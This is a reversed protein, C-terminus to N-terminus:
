ITTNVVRNRKELQKRLLPIHERKVEKGFKISVPGSIIPCKSFEVEVSGFFSQLNKKETKGLLSKSCSVSAVADAQNTDVSQQGFSWLENVISQKYASLSMKLRAAARVNMGELLKGIHDLRSNLEGPVQGSMGSIAGRHSMLTGSPTIYRTGMEQVIQYGMSAAFITITHIPRGLSKLNDIFSLGAVVSGGPTDLVIYLPENKFLLNNKTFLELQKKAVFEDTVKENFNIHNNENLVIHVPSGYVAKALLFGLILLFQM